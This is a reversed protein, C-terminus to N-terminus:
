LHAFRCLAHKAPTVNFTNWARGSVPEQLTGSSALANSTHLTMSLPCVSTELQCTRLAPLVHLPVMHITMPLPLAPLVHLPLGTVPGHSRDIVLAVCAPCAVPTGNRSWTFPCQCPCRLCSKRPRSCSPRLAIGNNACTASLIAESFSFSRPKRMTFSGAASRWKLAVSAGM